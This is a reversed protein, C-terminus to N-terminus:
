GVYSNWRRLTRTRLQQGRKYDKYRFTVQGDELAVLRHNSIAVRYVYRSLYKLVHKSRSYAGSKGAM